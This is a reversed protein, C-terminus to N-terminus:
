GVVGAGQGGGLGSKLGSGPNNRPMGAAQQPDPPQQQLLHEPPELFGSETELFGYQHILDARTLPYPLPANPEIPM